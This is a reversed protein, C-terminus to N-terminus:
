HTSVCSPASHTLVELGPGPFLIISSLIESPLRPHVIRWISVLPLPPRTVSLSPTVNEEGHKADARDPSMQATFWSGHAPMANPWTLCATRSRGHSRHPM